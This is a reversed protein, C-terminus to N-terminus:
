PTCLEADLQDIIGLRSTQQPMNLVRKAFAVIASVAFNMAEKAQTVSVAKGDHLWGNRAHYIRAIPKNVSGTLVRLRRKVQREIVGREAKLLIDFTTVCNSLIENHENVCLGAALHKIAGALAQRCQANAHSTQDHLVISIVPALQSSRLESMLQTRTISETAHAFQVHDRSGIGAQYSKSDAAIAVDRQTRTSVRGCLGAATTFGSELATFLTLLGAIELARDEARKPDETASWPGSGPETVDWRVAIISDTDETLLIEEAPNRTEEFMSFRKFREEAWNKSVLTADGFCPSAFDDDSDTVKIGVLPFLWWYERCENVYKDVIPSM